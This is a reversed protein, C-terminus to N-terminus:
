FINKGIPSTRMERERLWYQWPRAPSDRRYLCYKFSLNNCNQRSSEGVKDFWPPITPFFTDCEFEQEIETVYISRLDANLLWQRYVDEGGVIWVEDYKKERCYQKIEPISGFVNDGELTRSLVLNDRNPLPRKSLGLWTTRGMIIANNKKGITKQKFHKIDCMAWPLRDGKGIGRNRCHAVIM